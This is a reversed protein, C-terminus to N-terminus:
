SFGMFKLMSSVLYKLIFLTGIPIIINTVIFCIIFDIMKNILSDFYGKISEFFSVVGSGMRRLMNIDSESGKDEIEKSTNKIDNVTNDIYSSLISSEVLNSLELSLPVAVCIGSTIIIIGIVTKKVHGSYKKYWMSAVILLICVPIIIKFSVWISIALLIKQLTLAGIAWLCINSIHNLTNDVVDAWGLPQASIALGGVVPISGEVQITQLFSIIGSAIKVSLWVGGVQGIKKTLQEQLRGNDKVNTYQISSSFIFISISMIILLISIIIKGTKSLTM